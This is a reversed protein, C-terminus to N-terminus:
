RAGQSRGRSPAHARSVRGVASAHRGIRSLLAARHSRSGPTGPDRQGAPARFGLPGHEGDTRGRQRRGPADCQGVGAPLNYGSNNRNLIAIDAHLVLGQEILRSRDTWSLNRLEPFVAILEAFSWPAVRTAPEDLEGPVHATVANIWSQFTRSAERPQSQRAIPAADMRSALVAALMAVAAYRVVRDALRRAHTQDSTM